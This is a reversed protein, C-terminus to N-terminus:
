RDSTLTSVPARAPRLLPESRRCSGRRRPPSRTERTPGGRARAPVITPRRADTDGGSGLSRGASGTELM